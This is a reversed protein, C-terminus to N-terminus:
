AAMISAQLYHYGSSLDTLPYSICDGGPRANFEILYVKGYVVKIETHCPGNQLNLATLARDIVTEIKKRTDESIHAPQHHGVEVCHPPGSSQKQTVQVVYNKGRYSLSEVSFEM